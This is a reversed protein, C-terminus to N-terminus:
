SLVLFAFSYTSACASAGLNYFTVTFSGAGPTVGSVFVVGTTCPSQMSVLVVDTTAACITNTVTITESVGAGLNATSSTIVGAQNSMTIANATAAAALGLLILFATFKGTNLEM